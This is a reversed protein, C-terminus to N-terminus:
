ARLRYASELAALFADPDAPSLLVGHGLTTPVFVARDDDTVHVLADAGNALTYWGAAYGPLEAGLKRHVRVFGRVRRAEHLRLASRPIRGSWWGSEIELADPAFVVRGSYAAAVERGLFASAILGLLALVPAHPWGAAVMSSVTAVVVLALSLAPGPGSRALALSPRRTPSDHM